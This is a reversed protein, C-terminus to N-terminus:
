AQENKIFEVETHISHPPLIQGLIELYILGGSQLRQLDEENPKWATVVVQAGDVNGGQILGVFAHITQVQSEDMDNPPGYCTNAEPFKAPTM